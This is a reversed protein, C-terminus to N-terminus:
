LNGERIFDEMTLKLNNDKAIQTMKRLKPLRPTRVDTEWHSVSGWHVDLLKAFENQELGLQLRFRKIVTGISM